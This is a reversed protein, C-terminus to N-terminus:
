AHKDYISLSMHGCEKCESSSIGVIPFVRVEAKTHCCFSDAIVTLAM